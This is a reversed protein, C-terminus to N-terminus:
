AHGVAGVEDDHLAVADAGFDCSRSQMHQALGVFQQPEPQGELIRHDAEFSADPMTTGHKKLADFGIVADEFTLGLGLLKDVERLVHLTAATIEPGIGDGQMVVLHTRNSM